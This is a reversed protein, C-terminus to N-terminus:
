QDDHDKLLQRIEDVKDPSMQIVTQIGASIGEIYALFEMVLALAIVGSIIVWDVESYWLVVAM